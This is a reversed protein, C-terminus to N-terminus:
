CLYAEFNRSLIGMIIRGTFQSSLFILFNGLSLIFQVFRDLQNACSFQHFDGVLNNAHVDDGFNQYGLHNLLTAKTAAYVMKDRIKKNKKMPVNIKACGDISPVFFIVKTTDPVYTLTVWKGPNVQVLVYCTDAGVKSAIQAWDKDCHFTNL